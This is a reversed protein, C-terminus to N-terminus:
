STCSLAGVFVRVDNEIREVLRAVGGRVAQGMELGRDFERGFIVYIWVNGPLVGLTRALELGAEVGLTHTGCPAKARLRPPSAGYDIRTLSGARHRGDARAADIVILLEANDGNLDALGSGPSEDLVVRTQPLGRRRLREAAVLGAQDDGMSWRGCGVIRVLAGM